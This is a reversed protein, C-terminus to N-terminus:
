RETIFKRCDSWVVVALYVRNTWQIYPFYHSGNQETYKIYCEWCGEKLDLLAKSILFLTSLYLKKYNATIQSWWPQLESLYNFRLTSAWCRYLWISGVIWWPCVVIIETISKRQDSRRLYFGVLIASIHRWHLQWIKLKFHKTLTNLLSSFSNVFCGLLNLTLWNFIVCITYNKPRELQM